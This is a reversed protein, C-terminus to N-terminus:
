ITYYILYIVSSEEDVIVLRAYISIVDEVKYINNNDLSKDSPKTALM